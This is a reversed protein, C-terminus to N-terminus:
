VALKLRDSKSASQDGITMRKQRAVFGFDSDLDLLFRELRRLIASEPDRESHTDKRGLFDLLYPDQFVLDSAM